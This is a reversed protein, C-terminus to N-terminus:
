LKQYPGPFEEMAGLRRLAATANWRVYINEHDTMNQLIPIAAPDEMKGILLSLRTCLDNNDSTFVAESLAPLASKGLLMLQRSTHERSQPSEEAMRQILRRAAKM